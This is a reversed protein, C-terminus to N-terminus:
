MMRKGAALYWAKIGGQKENWFQEVVTEIDKVRRFFGISSSRLSHKQIRGACLLLVLLGSLAVLFAGVPFKASCYFYFHATSDGDYITKDFDYVNWM